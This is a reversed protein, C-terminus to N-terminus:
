GSCTARPDGGEAYNKDQVDTFGEGQLLAEAVYKPAQCLSDTRATRLTTTEPPPEAAIPRSPLGLFGATGALTLGALFRRRSLPRAHPTSM